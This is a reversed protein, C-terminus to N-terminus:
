VAGPIGVRVKLWKKASDSDSFYGMEYKALPEYYSKILRLIPESQVVIAVVIRPNIMQAGLAYAVYSIVDSESIDFSSVDTFNNLTFRFRDYDPHNQTEAISRKFEDASVHGFFRKEVGYKNFQIEYPMAQRGM